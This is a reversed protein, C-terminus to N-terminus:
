AGKELKMELYSATCMDEPTLSFTKILTDLKAFGDEDDYEESLVAEFEIFDGLTEVRDLHIRVNEWLYLSRVKDVVALVGLAEGLFPKISANAPELLYDCGKTGATDPRHYFVLECRGPEAERLKLRGEPVKFYTDLQHIDGQAAAQLNECAKLAQDRDRLKAKLEINRM